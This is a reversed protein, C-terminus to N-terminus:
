DNSKLINLIRDLLIERQFFALPYKDINISIKLYQNMCGINLFLNQTKLSALILLYRLIL